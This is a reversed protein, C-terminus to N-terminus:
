PNYARSQMMGRWLDTGEVEYIIKGSSVNATLSSILFTVPQSEVLISENNCRVGTWGWKVTAIYDTTLKTFDTNMAEYFRDFSGGSQDHIVLKVVFGDSTGYEFSKIIATHLPDCGPCSKNGVTLEDGAKGDISVKVWPGINHADIPLNIRCNGYRERCGLLLGKTIDPTLETPM